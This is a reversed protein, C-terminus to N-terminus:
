IKELSNLITHLFISNKPKKNLNLVKFTEIYHKNCIKHAICIANRINVEVCECSTNNNKAVRSYSETVNSKESKILELVECTYKFGLLNSPIGLKLLFSKLSLMRDIKKHELCLDFIIEKLHSFNFSKKLYYNAGLDFTKSIINASGVASVVLIKPKEERSKLFKLVELGDSNQMVFDLIMLDYIENQLFEIAEKGDCALDVNRVEPISLVFENILNREDFNDEAILINLKNKM